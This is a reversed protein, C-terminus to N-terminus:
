TDCETGSTFRADWGWLFLGVGAEAKPEFGLNDDHFFALDWM